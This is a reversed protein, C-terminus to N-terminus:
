LTEYGCSTHFMSFFINGVIFYFQFEGVFATDKSLLFSMKLNKYQFDLCHAYAITDRRYM